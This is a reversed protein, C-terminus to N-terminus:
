QPLTQFNSALTKLGNLQEENLGDPIIQASRCMFFIRASKALIDIVDFTDPVNEGIAFVGHKEWIAVDHDRLAKITETAIDLTGPLFYPVFGVGKPVFIMTEPHMSWLLNNLVDQKCFERAQTISVLETVHSHMVVKESSGREAIMQHIALHAPLESTPKFNGSDTESSLISYGNASDNLKIFLGNELPKRALDRMRKGKGSVFFVCGALKPYEMPLETVPLSVKEAIEHGLLDSVHVSINGANREAWGREWMYGAVGAIERLVTKLAKNSKLIDKMSIFILHTLEQLGQLHISM